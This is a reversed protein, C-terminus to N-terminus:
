LRLITWSLMKQCGTSRECRTFLHTEDGATNKGAWHGRGEGTGWKSDPKQQKIKVSSTSELTTVMLGRQKDKSMNKILIKGRLFFFWFGEVCRPRQPSTFGCLPRPLM